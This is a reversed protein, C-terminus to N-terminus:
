PFCFPGKFALWMRDLTSLGGPSFITRGVAGPFSPRRKPPRRLPLGGGNLLVPPGNPSVKVQKQFAKWSTIRDISTMVTRNIENDRLESMVRVQCWNAEIPWSERKYHSSLSLSLFHRARILKRSCCWSDFYAAQNIIFRSLCEVLCPYELAWLDSVESSPQVRQDTTQHDIRQPGHYPLSMAPQTSLHRPIWAFGLQVLSWARRMKSRRLGLWLRFCFSVKKEIWVKRKWM